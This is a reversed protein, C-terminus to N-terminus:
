RNAALMVLISPASKELFKAAAPSLHEVTTQGAALAGLEVAVQTLETERREYWRLRAAADRLKGVVWGHPAIDLNRGYVPWDIGFDHDVAPHPDALKCQVYQGPPPGFPEQVQCRPMGPVSVTM